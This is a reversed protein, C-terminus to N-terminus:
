NGKALLSSSLLHKLSESNSAQRIKELNYDLTADGYVVWFEGITVDDNGESQEPINVRVGKAYVTAPVQTINYRRFLIPDVMIKTNLMACQEGSTLDCTSSSKRVDAFYNTTPIIKTAGGIFGRMVLAMQSQDGYRALSSAYARVTDIPMSSSVFIYIREDDALRAVFRTENLGKKDDDGKLGGRESPLDKLQEHFLERKIRDTEAAIKAQYEPSQYIAITKAAEKQMEKELKNKPIQLSKKIKEVKALTKNVDPFSLPQVSQSKWEKGDCFIAVQGDLDVFARGPKGMCNGFRVLHVARKKQDVKSVLCCEDPTDIFGAAGACFPLGFLVVTAVIASNCQLWRLVDAEKNGGM